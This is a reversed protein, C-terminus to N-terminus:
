GTGGHRRDAMAAQPNTRLRGSAFADELTARAVAVTLVTDDTCRCRSHFLPFGRTGIPLAEYVSGIIDGAIAGIM